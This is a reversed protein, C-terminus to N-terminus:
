KKARIKEYNPSSSYRPTSAKPRTKTHKKRKTAIRQSKGTNPLAPREIGSQMLADHRDRADLQHSDLEEAFHRVSKASKLVMRQTSAIGSRFKRTNSNTANKLSLLRVNIGLLTQAIENQLELSLNRRDDEQAGLLRHTLERLHQHLQPYETLQKSKSESSNMLTAESIISRRIHKQLKRNTKNLTATHRGLSTTLDHMQVTAKGATEHVNEIAIITEAFFADARKRVAGATKTSKIRALSGAHIKAVELLKLGLAAAQGGLASVSHPSVM